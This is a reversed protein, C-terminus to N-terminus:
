KSFAEELKAKAFNLAEAFTIHPPWTIENPNIHVDIVAPKNNALADAVTTDLQLPDSITYGSGGCSKAFWAFDIVPLGTEYEPNGARAEEEMKIFELKTNNFVFVKINLKYKVATAFDAMLMSFGGDGCLAIVQRGPYLLQAGIAGPMGIAMSALGGSLTFTQRGKIKFNRAGWVTVAGTDCVIIADGQAHDSICRALAQPHIPTDRSIEKEEQKATWKKMHEQCEHLFDGNAKEELLPILEQLTEKADGVLATEVPHRRGIKGSEYDIQITPVNKDPYFDPYPFDSGAILLLDCSKMAKYAAETGLLGIGGVTLPHDDALIDKGRLAKIIPAKIKEAVAILETVAAKAGIGALICPNKSQNILAAADELASKDPIINVRNYTTYKKKKYSSVNKSSVDIPICLFAPAKRSLATQCALVALEPMQDPNFVTQNFVTVDNFLANLNVEQQYSTGALSTPVQGAIALVPAQDMKADYLGNLLHIAGPGATGVCVALQGSIKAQVSAAFAGAEEHLVHIFKIKDQKRIAEILENIADGPIGFIQKVGYDTLIDILAESVNM